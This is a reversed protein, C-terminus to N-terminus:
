IRRRNVIEKELAEEFEKREDKYILEKPIEGFPVRVYDNKIIQYCSRFHLFPCGDCSLGDGWNICNCDKVKM